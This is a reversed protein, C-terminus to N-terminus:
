GSLAAPMTRTSPGAYRCLAECPVGDGDGDLRAFGCQSPHSQAEACRTM